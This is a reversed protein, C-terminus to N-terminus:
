GASSSRGPKATLDLWSEIYLVTDDKRAFNHSKEQREEALATLYESDGAAM